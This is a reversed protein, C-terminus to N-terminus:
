TFEPPVYHSFFEKLTLMLSKIKHNKSWVAAYQAVPFHEDVSLSIFQESGFPMLMDCPIVTFYGANLVLNYITAASDTKVINEVRIGNNLLTSLLENYYGMDTHPIVWYENKLSGLTTSCVCARSQSAVLVFRSEFLPEIQLDQLQMNDSLTGIAFDLRGDRIAPLLSSLQAEFMSIQVNPYMGKLTKMMGSLLTFSILSPFGFAIDTVNNGSLDNIERVMNQMERIIHESGSYLTQGAPTLTVGSCTRILLEMGFSVEMERIIKSVAPQSLGLSRAASGLSGKRITEQFIVLHQVKPLFTM